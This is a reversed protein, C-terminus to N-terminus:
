LGGGVKGLLKLAFFLGETWKERAIAESMRRATDRLESHSIWGSAPDSRDLDTTNYDRRSVGKEKEVRESEILLADVVRRASNVFERATQVDVGRFLEPLDM